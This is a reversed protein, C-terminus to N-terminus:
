WRRFYLGFLACKALRRDLDALCDNTPLFDSARFGGNLRM